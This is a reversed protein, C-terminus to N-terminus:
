TGSAEREKPVSEDLLRHGASGPLVPLNLPNFFETETFFRLGANSAMNKDSDSFDKRRGAADGVYFSRERCVNVGQGVAECSAVLWDWMGTQPKHFRGSTPSYKVGILGVLGLAPVGAAAVLNEVRGFKRELARSRDIFIVILVLLCIVTM